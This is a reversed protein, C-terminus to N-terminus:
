PSGSESRLALVHDLIANIQAKSFKMGFGPMGYELLGNRIVRKLEVRENITSNATFSRWPETVFNRPAAPLHEAIPGDGRGSYGHCPACHDVFLREGLSLPAAHAGSEVQKSISADATDPAPNTQDSCGQMFCAAVLGLPIGIPRQNQLRQFPM